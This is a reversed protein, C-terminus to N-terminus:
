FFDKGLLLRTLRLRRLPPIHELAHSRCNARKTSLISFPPDARDASGIKVCTDVLSSRMYSARKTKRRGDPHHVKFHHLKHRRVSLSNM